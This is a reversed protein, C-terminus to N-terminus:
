QNEGTRQEHEKERREKVKKALEKLHRTNIKNAYLPDMYSSGDKEDYLADSLIQRKLEQYSFGVTPAKTNLLAQNLTLIKVEPTKFDAFNPRHYLDNADRVLRNLIVEAQVCRCKIGAKILNEFFEQALDVYSEYKAADKNLMNMIMYLNDTLGNNKIDISMLRGELDTSLVDLPIEYYRKGGDAKKDAAIKFLKMSAADIFMSEYNDIEIKDYEKTASNYVYFPSEINNGFTNYEAIDQSNVPIVNDEEIRVSLHSTPVSDDWEDKDKLFIDGANYKFYKNFNTSFSIKNAATFLLHKTSLINQSVPESYIETNFIAMGPMNQVLHSDQGYCIHCVEDGCACTVLSRIYITKGILHKCQNYHLIQLNEGEHECYWKNELRHLFDSNTVKVPLLHKTGCDYVTDSLTLTRSMLILNRSLYGAEGMHAKNMIASLRAGTAAIYYTTPDVYGTSFGNGQMTYPIVNGTVDPIQGYSLFLEQVQKPKIHNGAKSVYWIPNKTVGLEAVLETTKKRLLDEVDATQLNQSIQMNNLERIKPSSRYDNLFVSELTMISAKDTMAFEISLEQYREITIKLLECIRDFQIGYEDLTKLVKSELGVRLNDSMMIGIIFSEDLVEIQTSYYDSLQHLEILPRWANLNLLFKTLSLEYTKEDEYYFKFRVHYHICEEIEVCACIMYYVKYYLEDFKEYTDYRSIIIVDPFEREVDALTRISPLTYKTEDSM